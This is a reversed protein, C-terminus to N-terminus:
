VISYAIQLPWGFLINNSNCFNQSNVDAYPRLVFECVTRPTIGYDCRAPSVVSVHCTSQVIKHDREPLKSKISPTIFSFLDGVAYEFLSSRAQRGSHFVTPARTLSWRLFEFFHNYSSSTTYSLSCECDIPWKRTGGPRQKLVLTPAWGKIHFDNKMSMCIFSM